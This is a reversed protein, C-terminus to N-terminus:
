FQLSTKKTQFPKGTNELSDSSVVYSVSSNMIIYGSANTLLLM